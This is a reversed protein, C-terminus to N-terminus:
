ETGCLIFCKVNEKFLFISAISSNENKKFLIIQVLKNVNTLIQNLFGWGVPLFLILCELM